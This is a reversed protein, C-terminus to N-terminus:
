FVIKSGVSGLISLKEDPTLQYHKKSSLLIRTLL